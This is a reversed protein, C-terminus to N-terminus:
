FRELALMQVGGGLKVGGRANVREIAWVLNRYVAEGANANPGSLAEIMAIKIPAAVPQAACFVPVCLAVLFLNLLWRGFIYMRNERKFFPRTVRLNPSAAPEHQVGRLTCPTVEHKEGGGGRGAVVTGGKGRSIAGQLAEHGFRQLRAASLGARNGFILLTVGQTKVYGTNGLLLETDVNFAADHADFGAFARRTVVLGRVLQWLVDVRRLAFGLEVVAHQSQLEALQYGLGLRRCEVDVSFVLAVTEDNRAVQLGDHRAEQIRASVVCRGQVRMTMVLAARCDMTTDGGLHIAM